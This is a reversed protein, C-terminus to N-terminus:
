PKSVIIECREDGRLLCQPEKIEVKEDYQHSIAKAIGKAVGCLKRPSTYLITVSNPDTRQTKLYPPKAGPTKLRVQRHVMEETHEILDLTKWTPNIQTQYMKYLDPGMFQGFAEHIENEKLSTKSAAASVISTLAEDDYVQTPMFVKGPMGADKLIGNWAEAGYSSVVFRKLESYILGHM